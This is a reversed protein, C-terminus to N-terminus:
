RKRWMLQCEYPKHYKSCDEVFRSEREGCAPKAAWGIFMGFILVACLMAGYIVTERYSM